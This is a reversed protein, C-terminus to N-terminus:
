QAVARFLKHGILGNLLILMGVTYWVHLNICGNWFYLALYMAGFRPPASFDNYFAYIHM